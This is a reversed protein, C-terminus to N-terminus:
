FIKKRTLIIRTLYRFFETIVKLLDRPFKWSVNPKSLSVNKLVLKLVFFEKQMCEEYELMWYINWMTGSSNRMRGYSNPVNWTINRM